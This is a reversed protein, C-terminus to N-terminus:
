RVRDYVLYTASTESTTLSALPRTWDAEGPVAEVLQTFRGALERYEEAPTQNPNM